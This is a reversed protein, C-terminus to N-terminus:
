STSVVVMPCGSCGLRTLAAPTPTVILCYKPGVELLKQVDVDMAGSSRSYSVCFILSWNSSEIVFFTVQFSINDKLWICDWNCDCICDCPSASGRLDSTPGEAARTLVFFLQTSGEPFLGSMPSESFHPNYMSSFGERKTAM